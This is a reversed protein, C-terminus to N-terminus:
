QRTTLQEKSGLAVIRLRGAGDRMTVSTPGIEVIRAGEVEDGAEVIRGDITALKRDPGFLITGLVPTRVFREVPQNRSASRIPSPPDRPAAATPSAAEVPAPVPPRQRELLRAPTSAPIPVRTVPAAAIPRRSAPKARTGVPDLVAVSIPESWHAMSAVRGRPQPAPAALWASRQAGWGLGLGAGIGAVVAARAFMASVARRRRDRFLNLPATWDAAAAWALRLEIGRERFDGAQDPLHEVDVGFMSDLPEVEVDLREMLPATMSRLEPLAGCMCTATVAGPDIGAASFFEVVEHALRAAVKERPVRDGFPEHEHVYGWPLERAAVLVHQRVLAICTSSEELAVYAEIAHTAGKGRRLRAISALAAAPTVVSRVRIGAAVLPSLAAAVDRRSALATVVPRRPAGDPRPGAPAIDTLVGRTDIGASRLSDIAEKRMADYRGANVVAQRHDNRLGWVVVAAQRGRLRALKVQTEGNARPSISFSRICTISDATGRMPEIEVIRCDIPSLEIGIRTSM